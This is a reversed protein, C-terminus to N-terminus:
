SLVWPFFTGKQGKSKNKKPPPLDADEIQRKSVQPEVRTRRELKQLISSGKMLGFFAPGSHLTHKSYKATERMADALASSMTQNSFVRFEGEAITAVVFEEFIVLFYSIEKVVKKITFGRGVVASDRKNFKIPISSDGWHLVEIGSDDRFKVTESRLIREMNSHKPLVELEEQAPGITPQTSM